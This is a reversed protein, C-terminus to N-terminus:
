STLFRTQPVKLRWRLLGLQSAQLYDEPVLGRVSELISLPRAEAVFLSSVSRACCRLKGPFFCVSDPRFPVLCCPLLSLLLGDNGGGGPEM